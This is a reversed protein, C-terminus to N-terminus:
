FSVIRILQVYFLYELIQVNKINGISKSRALLSAGYGNDSEVYSFNPISKYGFGSNLLRRILGYTKSYKKAIDVINTPIHIGSIDTNIKNIYGELKNLEPLKFRCM